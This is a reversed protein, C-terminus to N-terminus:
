AKVLQPQSARMVQERPVILVEANIPDGGKKTVQDRVSAIAEKQEQPTTTVFSASHSFASGSGDRYVVSVVMLQPYNSM